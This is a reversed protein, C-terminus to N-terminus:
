CALRLRAKLRRFQGPDMAGRTLLWGLRGRGTALDLVILESHVRTGPGVDAPRDCAEGALRARWADGRYVLGQLRCHRGPLRALTAIFAASALLSLLVALSTPCRAVWPLAAASLHLLLAAAALRPEPRPEITVPFSTM